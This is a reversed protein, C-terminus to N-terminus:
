KGVKNLFAWFKQGAPIAFSLGLIMLGIIINIFPLICLIFTVFITVVIGWAKETLDNYRSRCDKSKFYTIFNFFKTHIRYLAYAWCSVSLISTILWLIM